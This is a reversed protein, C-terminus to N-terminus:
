PPTIRWNSLHRFCDQNSGQRGQCDNNYVPCFSFEVPNQGNRLEMIQPRHNGPLYGEVEDTEKFKNAM